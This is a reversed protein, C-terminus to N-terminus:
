SSNEPNKVIKRKPQYMRRGARKRKRKRKVMKKMGNRLMRKRMNNINVATKPITVVVEM